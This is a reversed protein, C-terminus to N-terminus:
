GLSPTTVVAIDASNSVGVARARSTIGVLTTTLNM